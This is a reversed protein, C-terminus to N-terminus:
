ALIQRREAATETTFSVLWTFNRCEPLKESLDLPTGAYLSVICKEPLRQPLLPYSVGMRDTLCTGETGKGNECLRCANRGDKLGMKGGKALASFGIRKGYLGM